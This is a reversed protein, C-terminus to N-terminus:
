NGQHMITVKAQSNLTQLQSICQQQKGFKELVESIREQRLGNSADFM